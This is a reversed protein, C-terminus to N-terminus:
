KIEKLIQDMASNILKTVEECYKTIFPDKGDPHYLKIKNRFAKKIEERSASKSVELLKYPTKSKLSEINSLYCHNYNKWKMM